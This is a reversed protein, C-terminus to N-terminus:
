GCTPITHKFQNRGTVPECEKTLCCRSLDCQMRLVFTNKERFLLKNNNKLTKGLECRKQVTCRSNATRQPYKQFCKFSCMEYFHKLYKVHHVTYTHIFSSRISILPIILIIFNSFFKMVNQQFLTFVCILFVRRFNM